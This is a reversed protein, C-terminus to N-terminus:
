DREIKIHMVERIVHERVRRLLPHLSKTMSKRDQEHLLKSLYLLLWINTENMSPKYLSM